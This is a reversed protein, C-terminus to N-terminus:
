QICPMYPLLPYETNYVQEVHNQRPTTQLLAEAAITLESDFESFKLTGKVVKEIM